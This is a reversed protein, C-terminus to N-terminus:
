DFCSDFTVPGYVAIQDGNYRLVLEATFVHGVEGPAFGLVLLFQDVEGPRVHHAVAVENHDGDILVDYRASPTYATLFPQRDLVRVTARTVNASAEGANRLRVDLVVHGAGRSVLVDDISLAAKDVDSVEPATRRPSSGPRATAAQRYAHDIAEVGYEYHPCGVVHRLRLVDGRRPQQKGRSWASIATDSRGIQQGLEALTRGGRHEDLYHRVIQAITPPAAV